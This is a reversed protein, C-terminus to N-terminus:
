QMLLAAEDSSTAVWVTSCRGQLYQVNEETAICEPILCVKAHSGNTTAIIDNLVDEDAGTLGRFDILGRVPNLGAVDKVLEANEYSAAVFVDGLGSEILYFKLAAAADADSVYLAPIIHRRHCGRVRRPVRFSTAPPTSSACALTWTCWRPPRACTRTPPKSSPPTPTGPSPPPFCLPPKRSTSRSYAMIEEAPVPAPTPEAEEAVALVPLVVSLVLALLATPKKM